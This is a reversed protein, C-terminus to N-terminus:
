SKIKIGMGYAVRGGNMFYPLLVEVEPVLSLRLGRDRATAFEDFTAYGYREPQSEISREIGVRIEEPLESFETNNLDLALLQHGLDGLIMPLLKRASAQAKQSESQVLNSVLKSIEEYERQDDYTRDPRPTATNAVISIGRTTPPKDRLSPTTVKPDPPTYPRPLQNSEDRHRTPLSRAGSGSSGLINFALNPNLSVPMGPGFGARMEKPLSEASALATILDEPVEGVMVRGSYKWNIQEIMAVTLRLDIIRHTATSVLV